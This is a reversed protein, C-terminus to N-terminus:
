FAKAALGGPLTQAEGSLELELLVAACRSAPLGSARAIEDIPMPHPSLAELVRHLESESPEGAEPDFEFPRPLHRACRAGDLTALIDL